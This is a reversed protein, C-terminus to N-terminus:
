KFWNFWAASIMNLVAGKGPIPTPLISDYASIRDSAAIILRDGLDYIDRVKGRYHPQVDHFEIPSDNHKGNNM